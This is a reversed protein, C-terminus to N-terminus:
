RQLVPIRRNLGTTYGQRQSPAIMCVYITSLGHRSSFAAATYTCPSWLSIEVADSFM